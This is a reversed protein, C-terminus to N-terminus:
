PSKRVSELASVLVCLQQVTESRPFTDNPDNIQDRKLMEMALVGAAPVAFFALQYQNASLQGVNALVDNVMDTLDAKFQWCLDKLNYAKTVLNLLSKASAMLHSSDLKQRNFIARELLFDQHRIAILPDTRSSQWRHCVLFCLEGCNYGLLCQVDLPSWGCDRGPIRFTPDSQIRSMVVEVDIRAFEPM